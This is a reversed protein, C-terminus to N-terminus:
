WFRRETRYNELIAPTISPLLEINDNLLDLFKQSLAETDEVNRGILKFQETHLWEGPPSSNGRWGTKPPNVVAKGTFLNKTVKAGIWIAKERQIRHTFLNITPSIDAEWLPTALIVVFSEIGANQLCEIRQKEGDNLSFRHGFNRSPFKHKIEIYVLKGEPSKLFLDHDWLRTVGYIKPIYYDKILLDKIYEFLDSKNQLHFAYGWFAACISRDYLNLSKNTFEPLAATIEQPKELPSGNADDLCFLKDENLSLRRTINETQNKLKHLLESASASGDRDRFFWINKGKWIQCVVLADIIKWGNQLATKLLSKIAEREVIFGEFQAPKNKELISIILEPNIDSIVLSIKEQNIM